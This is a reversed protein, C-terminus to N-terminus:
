ARVRQSFKTKLMIIIEELKKQNVEDLSEYILKLEDIERIIREQNGM